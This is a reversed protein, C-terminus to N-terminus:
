KGNLTRNMCDWFDIQISPCYRRVDALKSDKSDADAALQVLSFQFYYFFFVQLVNLMFLYLITSTFFTKVDNHCHVGEFYTNLYIKLRLFQKKRRKNIFYIKHNIIQREQENSSRISM